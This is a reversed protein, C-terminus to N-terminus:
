VVSKRDSRWPSFRRRVEADFASDIRSESPGHRLGVFYLDYSEYSLFFRWDSFWNQLDLRTTFDKETLNRYYTWGRASTFPSAEPSSRCTGHERRGTTACTMVVMGDRRTMRLMNVFTELWFPNHEFCELSVACDFSESPLDVLQGPGILDVSPGADLDVGVYLQSQFMGRISGNIDLAGIEIVKSGSFYSPLHRKIIQVFETQEEHAM